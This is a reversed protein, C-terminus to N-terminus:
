MKNIYSNDVVYHVLSGLQGGIYTSWKRHGWNPDEKNNSNSPPSRRLIPHPPAPVTNGNSICLFCELPSGHVCLLKQQYCIPLEIVPWTLFSCLVTTVKSFDAVGIVPLFKSVTLFAIFICVCFSLICITLYSVMHLIFAFLTNCSSTFVNYFFVSVIQRM